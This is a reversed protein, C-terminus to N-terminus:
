LIDMPSQIGQQRVYQFVFTDAQLHDALPV